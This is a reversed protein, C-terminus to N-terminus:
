IPGDFATVLSLHRTVLLDGAAALGRPQLAPIGVPLGREAIPVDGGCSGQRQGASYICAGTDEGANKSVASLQFSRQERDGKV